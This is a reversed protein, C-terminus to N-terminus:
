EESVMNKVRQYMLYENKAAASGKISITFAHFTPFDMSYNAQSIMPPSNSGGVKM